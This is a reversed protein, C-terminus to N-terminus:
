VFLAFYIIIFYIGLGRLSRFALVSCGLGLESEKQPQVHQSLCLKEPFDRPALPFYFHISSPKFSLFM